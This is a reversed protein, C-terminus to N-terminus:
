NIHRFAVVAKPTELSARLKNLQNIADTLNWFENIKGHCLHHPQKWLPWWWKRYRVFFLGSIEVVIYSTKFM